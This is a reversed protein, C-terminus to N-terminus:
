RKEFRDGDEDDAGDDADDYDRQESRNRADVIDPKSVSGALRAAACRLVHMRNPRSPPKVKSSSRTTSAIIPRSPASIPGRNNSLSSPDFTTVACVCTRMSFVDSSVM